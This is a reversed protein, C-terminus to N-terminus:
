SFYLKKITETPMDQGTWLRFSEAGQYLLMYMGSYTRCGAEGALRLLKTRSPEYIIDSVVLSENFVKKDSFLEDRIVCKDIDPSMGVPTGNILVDSRKISEMLADEDSIDGVKISFGCNVEDARKEEPMSVDGSLKLAELEEAIRTAREFSPGKRCFINIEQVGDLAAQVIIASAAGGAGLMTIKKGPLPFGAEESAKMFGKGDTTYGTLVGNDNVVTNVAGCVRAGVDLKDCLSCMKSKNPMTLNFGRAGLTRLGEVAKELGSEDVEFCLYRYDLDLLEFAKNHMLPSRSHKVPSGLLGTLVTNGTIM